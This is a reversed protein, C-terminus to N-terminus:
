AIRQGVWVGVRPPRQSKPPGVTFRRSPLTPFFLPIASCCVWKKVQCRGEPGWHARSSSQLVHQKAAPRRCSGPRFWGTTRQEGAGHCGDDATLRPVTGELVAVKRVDVRQGFVHAHRDAGM